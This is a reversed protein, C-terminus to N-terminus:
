RIYINANEKNILIANVEDVEKIMSYGIGESDECLKQEDHNLCIIWQGPYRIMEAVLDVVDQVKQPYAYGLQGTNKPTILM